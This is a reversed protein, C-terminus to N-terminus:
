DEFTNSFQNKWSKARDQNQHCGTEMWFEELFTNLFQNKWSKACDQNQHCNKEM